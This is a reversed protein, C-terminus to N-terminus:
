GPLFLKGYQKRKGEHSQLGLWFDGPRHLGSCRYDSYQVGVGSGACERSVQLLYVIKQWGLALVFKIGLGEQYGTGLEFFGLVAEQKSWGVVYQELVVGM